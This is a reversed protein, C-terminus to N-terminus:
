DSIIYDTLKGKQDFEMLYCSGVKFDEWIDFPLSIESCGDGEYITFDDSFPNKHTGFIKYFKVQKGSTDTFKVQKKGIVKVRM